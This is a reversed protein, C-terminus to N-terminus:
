WAEVIEFRRIKLLNVGGDVIRRSNLWNKEFIGSFHPKLDPNDAATSSIETEM